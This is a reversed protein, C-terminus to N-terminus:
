RKRAEAERKRKLENNISMMNQAEIYKIFLMVTKRDEIEWINCLAELAGWDKGLFSGSMGDWRDPLSNYLFFAQQVENPFRDLTVPM